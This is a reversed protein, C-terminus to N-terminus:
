SHLKQKSFLPMKENRDGLMAEGSAECTVAPTIVAPRGNSIQARKAMKQKKHFKKPFLMRLM